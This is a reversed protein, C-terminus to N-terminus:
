IKEWMRRRLAPHGEWGLYPNALNEVGYPKFRSIKTYNKRNFGFNWPFDRRM